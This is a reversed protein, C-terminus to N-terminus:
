AYSVRYHLLLTGKSNLLKHKLLKLKISKNLRSFIPTGSNFLKPEITLQFEDVLQDNLFQTSLNSGSALLVKKYGSSKLNDIIKKPTSNTFELQGPVADQKYKKPNSTLVLRLKNSDLKLTPKAAQYTKRGTIIVQHSKVLGKFHAQDEASTWQTVDPNDAQTIKGNITSVFALTVKMTGLPLSSSGHDLLGSAGSALADVLEAM